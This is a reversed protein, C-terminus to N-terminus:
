GLLRQNIEQVFTTHRILDQQLQEVNGSAYDLRRALFAFEDSAHPPMTLDKTNGRVMRLANILQRLFNLADLLSRYNERPIINSEVLAKMAARTNFQRLTSDDHGHTIQLGQILYEIDVLGGSSSKANFTGATVLHRLQRERMARMASVDFPTGTYLLRDRTALIQRGLKDDGVIPRLKILAQREYAWAEGDSAFYQEFMAFPVSLAGGKGYPRLRLDLEFIGEQKTTISDRVKAVLRNFYEANTIVRRGTTQGNGGYIFILEIDSAFGMERGGAKGLMCITLPCISRNELYPLDFMTRLEKVAIQYATEIILEALDTLEQSFEGFKAIHGQIQRMDIRFMERDKFCNLARRKDAETHKEKLILELAERLEAKSKKVALGTVDKVVPFLNEYQMRLFDDWLFDSVGLLRVMTRMVEPQEISALEDAWNPRTFLQSVFERFHLLASEPNPSQPLLNTFQKILATAVRLERQKHPATIKHHHADTVYLVDQVRNGVTDVGMRRINIGHLGLANSFEYLFGVTDPANIRLVTHRRAAENDIEIDIPLLTTQPESINQLVLAVRKALEAQAERQQGAQLRKSLKIFDKQYLSWCDSPINDFFPLVTFVDVIKRRSQNFQGKTVPRYRRKRKSRPKPATPPEDISPGYSFVHGDVINFGYVFLLGCIISLEGIYDYGVITVRWYGGEISVADIQAPTDSTLKQVLVAHRAIDDDSFTAVYSAHMRILHPLLNPDSIGTSISTVTDKVPDIDTLRQQYVVRIVTTHKQYLNVFRAGINKGKFGLRHALDNLAEPEQPLTHTQRYHILQLHHEVTRLFIYGNTLVRYEHSTIFRQRFLKSLAELTNSSRVTRHTKGYVLQLYQTVFEIDRISGEGLKVEGWDRGKQKLQKEIRQKLAHVELRVTEPSIDFIYSQIRRLFIRGLNQNGAVPRAKLLAQKEWLCADQELYRLYGDLTSVLAGSKGWPRLRMDVRYLFGESTVRALADILAQGLRIYQRPTDQSIFFLDIDSSYNLEGGGLKGMAIVVFGDASTKTQESVLTLCAQIMSDTLCSIQNTVTPLDFSGLLDATGIRLLEWRQFRRLADLAPIINPNLPTFSNIGSTTTSSQSPLYPRVIDQATQYLEDVTKPQSLRKYETLHVVHEPYRLLIGTLFQSSTFLTVLIEITRPNDTLHNLLHLQETSSNILREFSVLVNDPNPPEALARLLHPLNDAFASRTMEDQPISRIHQYARQWDSFGVASLRHYIANDDLDDHYLLERIQDTNVIPM